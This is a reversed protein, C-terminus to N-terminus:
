ACAHQAAAHRAGDLRWRELTSYRGGGPRERSEMLCFSGSRWRVPTAIAGDRAGAARPLGRALTVHLRFPREDCEFGADRVHRLLEQHAALMGAGATGTACLLGGRWRELRDLTVSFAPAVVAAAAARLRPLATEPVSGLFLLTVHLDADPVRRVRGSAHRRGLAELAARAAAGPRLAFFLRHRPAESM